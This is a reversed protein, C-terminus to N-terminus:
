SPLPSSADRSTADGPSSNPAGNGSGTPRLWLFVRSPQMTLRVVSQLEETMTGLDIQDRLRASFSEITRAADYRGRYFRRDVFGQIWRLVPRFAAAVALTSIAVAFNNDETLPSLLRQLVVVIGLYGGVVAATLVGYVLTRNLVREIDWLRYRMLGLVLALPILAFVPQFTRFVLVPIDEIPRGALTNATVSGVGQTLLVWVGMVLPPLLAWFLLRAQQHEQPTSPRTFRYAQALVGAAPTLVGFFLILTGARATGEVRVALLVAAVTPPLYLLILWPKRWHPVPRGDPFFLLAYVYCVGTVIHVVSENLAEGPSVPIAEFTRNAQLNFIAASGVLGFALLRAARDRPRLWLLLVALVLNLLSFLYDMVVTWLSGVRHAGDAMRMAFRGAFGPEFARLHFSDHLSPSYHAAVAGLGGILVLLVIGSFGLFTLLFLWHALRSRRRRQYEIGM